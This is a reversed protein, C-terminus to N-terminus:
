PHLLKVAQASFDEPVVFWIKEPFRRSSRSLAENFLEVYREHKLTGHKTGLPPIAIARFKENEATLFVNRLAKRVSKVTWSPEKALDHVIALMWCPRGQKVIVEGLKHPRSNRTEAIVAERSETSMRFEPDASLVTYTDDEMAVADVQFPPDDAPCATVQPRFRAAERIITVQDFAASM